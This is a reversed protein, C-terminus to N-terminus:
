RQGDFINDFTHIIRVTMDNSEKFFFRTSRRRLVKQFDFEVVCPTHKFGGVKGNEIDRGGDSERANSVEGFDKLEM